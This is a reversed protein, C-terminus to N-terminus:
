SVIGHELRGLEDLIMDAGFRSHLLSRPTKSDLAKCPFNLWEIFQEKGGFVEGGRAAILAIQLIQESAAPNFHMKPSYRQITRETVPLMSAIQSLSFGFYKTLQLLARKTVGKDSLKILDMETQINERLGLIKEINASIM